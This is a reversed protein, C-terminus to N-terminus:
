FRTMCVPWSAGQQKEIELFGCTSDLAPSPVRAAAHDITATEL